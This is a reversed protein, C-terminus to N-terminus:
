NKESLLSAEPRNRYDIKGQIEMEDQSGGQSPVYEPDDFEDQIVQKYM